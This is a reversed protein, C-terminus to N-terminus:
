VNAPASGSGGDKDTVKLTAIYTGAAAYTHSPTAGSGTTGDGFDWAYSFGAATDVTSPDTARGSFSVASGPTAHYPGGASATPAVNAVTVVATDQAVLGAADTVNLIATYTGNDAYTHSPTLTGSASSGDGFDWRYSLPATGGSATGAFSVSS